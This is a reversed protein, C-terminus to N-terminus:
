YERFDRIALLMDTFTTKAPVIDARFGAAELADATPKGIAARHMNNLIFETKDRGYASTLNEIFSKASLPSTFAMTDLFGDAAAKMLREMRPNMSAPKLRYAAISKVDGGAATLGDTQVDSGSDSRVLVFTKGYADPSLLKVIGSSSYEEPEEADSIGHKKLESTTAPGISVIRCGDIMRKFLDGYRKGCMEVATLSGFVLIPRIGLLSELRDFEADTGPLIELSPAAIVDFGLKEALKVSEELREAPRTFGITKM